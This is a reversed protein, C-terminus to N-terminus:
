RGRGKWAVSCSTRLYEVARDMHTDSQDTDSLREEAEPKIENLWTNKLSKRLAEPAHQEILDLVAQTDFGTHRYHRIIEKAERLLMRPKPPLGTAVCLFVTALVAPDDADGQTIRDWEKAVLRGYERVDEDLDKQVFFPILSDGFLLKDATIGLARLQPLEHEIFHQMAQRLLTQFERPAEKLFGELRTENFKTKANRTTSRAANILSVFSTHSPFKLAAKDVYLVLLASRILTDADESQAQTRDVGMKKGLWFALEIRNKIGQRIVWASQYEALSLSHAATKEDLFARQDEQSPQADLILTHDPLAHLRKLMDSGGKSHSQLTNDRLSLAATQLNGGSMEALYLSVLNVMRHRALELEPRLHATAFFNAIQVIGKAFEEQLTRLRESSILQQEVGHRLARDFFPRNDLTALASSSMM